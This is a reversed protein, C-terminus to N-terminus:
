MPGRVLVDAPELGALEGVDDDDLAVRELVEALGLLDCPGHDVAAEVVGRGHVLAALSFFRPPIPPISPNAEQDARCSVAQM